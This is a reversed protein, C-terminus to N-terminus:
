RRFSVLTRPSFWCTGLDSCRGAPWGLFLDQLGSCLSALAADRPLHLPLPTGAAWVPKMRPLLRESPGLAPSFAGLWKDKTPSHAARNSVTVSHSVPFYGSPWCMAKRTHQLNLMVTHGCGGAGEVGRGCRCRSFHVCQGRWPLPFYSTRKRALVAFRLTPELGLCAQKQVTPKM